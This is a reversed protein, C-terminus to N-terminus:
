LATGAQARRLLNLVVEVGASNSSAVDFPTRGELLPHSRCLFWRVADRDGHYARRVEEVVRGMEHIGARDEQFKM